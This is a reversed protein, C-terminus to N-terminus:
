EGEADLRELAEALKSRAHEERARAAAAMGDRYAGSAEDRRGLGELTQGLMLYTPVYEPKKGVLAQFARVAEDPQGAARLAMALSYRALADDPRQEVMKRLSELRKEPTM